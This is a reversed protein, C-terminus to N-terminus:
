CVRGPSKELINTYSMVPDWPGSIDDLQLIIFGLQSKDGLGVWHIRDVKPSLCHLFLDCHTSGFRTDLAM